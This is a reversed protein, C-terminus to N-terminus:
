PFLYEIMVSIAYKGKKPIIVNFVKYVLFPYKMSVKM